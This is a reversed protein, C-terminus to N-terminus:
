SAVNWGWMKWFMRCRMPTGHSDIPNGIRRAWEKLSNPPFCLPTEVKSEREGEKDSISIRIFEPCWTVNLVFPTYKIVYALRVKAEFNNRIIKAHTNTIQLELHYNEARLLFLRGPTMGLYNIVLFCEKIPSILDLKGLIGEFIPNIDIEVSNQM